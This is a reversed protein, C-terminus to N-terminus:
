TKPRPTEPQTSQAESLNSLWLLVGLCSHGLLSQEALENPWFTVFCAYSMFASCSVRSGDVGISYLWSLHQVHPFDEVSFHFWRKCLGM